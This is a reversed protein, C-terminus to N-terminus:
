SLIISQIGKEILFVGAIIAIFMKLGLLVFLLYIAILLEFYSILSEPFLFYKIILYVIPFVLLNFGILNFYELLILIGAIVDFLGLIFVLIM